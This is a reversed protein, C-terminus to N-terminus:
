TTRRTSPSRPRAVAAPKTVEVVEEAAGQGALDALTTQAFLKELRSREERWSSHLACPSSDSCSPLGLVCERFMGENGVAALIELLTISEAPRALAVGGTAGRQSQFIGASTLGQLVKTLFAFPVGLVEAIRRTSVFTGPGPREVAVQLAARIAYTCTSNLLAM